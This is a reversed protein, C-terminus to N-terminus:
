RAIRKGAAKNALRTQESKLSQVAQEVTKKKEYMLAAITLSGPFPWAEDVFSKKVAVCFELKTM